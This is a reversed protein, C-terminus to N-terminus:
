WSQADSRRCISRSSPVPPLSIFPPLHFRKQPILLSRLSNATAGTHSQHFRRGTGRAVQRGYKVHSQRSASYVAAQFCSSSAAALPSWRCFSILREPRSLTSPPPASPPAQCIIFLTLYHIIFSRLHYVTMCLTLTSVFVAEVDFSDLEVSHM